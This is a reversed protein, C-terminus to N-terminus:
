FADWFSFLIRGDQLVSPEFYTGPMFTLQRIGTGDGNMVFLTETREEHYEELYGTRDSCFVVRGDPLYVGAFDNFPGDTLQRLNTGDVNVEYLHFWDEGDRRMAFLVKKGDFSPAPKFVSGTKLHTLRTLKGDPRAPVLAYLNRGPRVPGMTREGRHYTASRAYIYSDRWHYSGQYVGQGGDTQEDFIPAGVFVIGPIDAAPQGQQPAPESVGPQPVGGGLVLLPLALSVVLLLPRARM